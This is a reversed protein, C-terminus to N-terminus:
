LQIELPVWISVGGHGTSPDFEDHHFELVHSDAATRALAPLAENWISSYTDFITSVHDRHEFVAYPKPEIELYALGKRRSGFETVEVACMYEFHGEDDPVRCIGIPMRETKHPIDEYHEAVFQQWQAPINVTADFSCPVSLGAARLKGLNRLAPRLPRAPGERLRLATTLDLMALNRTNRVQEPTVGFHDRFARTFAEHSGYGFELALTLIDPAGDALKRAAESLRRAKLYKMVPWGSATGFANALHSRSVGCAAAIANLTLQQSSNREIIWLAQDAISM